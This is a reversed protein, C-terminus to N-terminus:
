VKDGAKRFYSFLRYCIEAVPEANSHNGAKKGNLGQVFLIKKLAGQWLLCRPSITGAKGSRRNAPGASANPRREPHLKAEGEM